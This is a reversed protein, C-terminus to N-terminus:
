MGNIVEIADNISNNLSSVSDYFGDDNTTDDHVDIDSHFGEPLTKKYDDAVGAFKKRDFTLLKTLLAEYERAYQRLLTANERDYVKIAAVKQHIATLEEFLQEKM